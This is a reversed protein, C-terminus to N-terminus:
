HTRVGLLEYKPRLKSVIPIIVFCFLPPGMGGGQGGSQYEIVRREGSDMEYIAKAPIEDYCRAIFGVVGPTSKASQVVIATRKATNFTDSCDTQFVWHGTQHVLQAEMAMREVGGTVAVGFQDEERFVEELEM